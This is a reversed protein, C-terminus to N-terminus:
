IKEEGDIDYLMKEVKDLEEKTHAVNGKNMQLYWELVLKRNPLDNVVVEIDNPIRDFEKAYFGIGENDMDKLVPFENNLFMLLSTLRQKGDVIVMEGTGGMRWGVCNFYIPNSKGGKLIFEVYKVRKEMDWVHARQFDPNLDLGYEKVYRDITGVLLDLYHNVRYNGDSILLDRLSNARIIKGLHTKIKDAIEIQNNKRLFTEYNSLNNRRYKDLEESSDFEIENNQLGTEWILVKDDKIELRM